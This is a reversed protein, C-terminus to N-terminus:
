STACRASELGQPLVPCTASGWALASRDSRGDSMRTTSRMPWPSTAAGPHTRSRSIPVISPSRPQTIGRYHHRQDPRSPRADDLSALTSPCNEGLRRHLPHPRDRRGCDRALRHSGDEWLGSAPRGLATATEVRSLCAASQPNPCPSRRSTHAVPHRRLTRLARPRGITLSGDGAPAFRRRAVETKLKKRRRSGVLDRGNTVSVM